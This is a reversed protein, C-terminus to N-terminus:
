NNNKANDFSDDFRIKIINIQKSKLMHIVTHHYSQERTNLQDSFELQQVFNNFCEVSVLFVLSNFESRFRERVVDAVSQIDLISYRGGRPSVGCMWRMMMQEKRELGANPHLKLANKTKQYRHSNWSLSM